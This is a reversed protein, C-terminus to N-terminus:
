LLSSNDKYVGLVLDNVIDRMFQEEVEKITYDTMIKLAVNTSVTEIAIFDMSSIEKNVESIYIYLKSKLENQVEIIKQNIKEGNIKISKELCALNLDESNIKKSGKINFQAFEESTSYIVNNNCDALGVPNGIMNSLEELIDEMSASNISMNIFKDHVERFYALKSLQSNIIESMVPYMLDTYFKDIPIEIIPINNEDGWMILKMPVKSVCKGIKIVLASLKKIRLSEFFEVLEDENFESLPALSTILIENGRLWKGISKEEIITIGKVENHMGKNGGVVNADTYAQLKLIKEVTLIM